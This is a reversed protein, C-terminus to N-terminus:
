EAGVDRLFLLGRRIREWERLHMLNIRFDLSGPYSASIKKAYFIIKREAELIKDKMKKRM